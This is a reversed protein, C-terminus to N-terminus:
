DVFEIALFKVNETGNSSLQNYTNEVEQETPNRGRFMFKRVNEKDGDYFGIKLNVDNLREDDFKNTESTENKSVIDMLMDIIGEVQEKTVNKGKIYESKNNVISNGLANYVMWKIDDRSIDQPLYEKVNELITLGKYKKKKYLEEKKSNDEQSM